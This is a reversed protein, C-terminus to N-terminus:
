LSQNKIYNSITRNESQSKLKLKHLQENTLKFGVYADLKKNSEITQPAEQLIKDVQVFGIKLEAFAVASTFLITSLFLSKVLCKFKM